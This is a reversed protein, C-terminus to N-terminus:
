CRPKELKAQIRRAQKQEAHGIRGIAKARCIVRKGTSGQTGDHDLNRALRFDEIQYRAPPQRQGARLFGDRGKEQTEARLRLGTSRFRAPEHARCKRPCLLFIPAMWNEFNIKDTVPM